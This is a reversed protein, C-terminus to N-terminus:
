AGSKANDFAQLSSRMIHGCPSGVLVLERASGRRQSTVSHEAYGRISCPRVDRSEPASTSGSPSLRTLRQHERFCDFTGTRGYVPSPLNGDRFNRVPLLRFTPNSLCSDPSPLLFFFGLRRDHSRRPRSHIDHATVSLNIRLEVSDM